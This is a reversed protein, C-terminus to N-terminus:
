VGFRRYNEAAEKTPFSKMKKVDMKNSLSETKLWYNALKAGEFVESVEGWSQNSWLAVYWDNHTPM